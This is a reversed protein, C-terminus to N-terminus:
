KLLGQKLQDMILKENRAFEDGSMKGIEERTFVRNNISNTPSNQAYATLKRKAIENEDNLSKDYASKKLYRNVASNELNEVLGAIRLMEDKDMPYGDLYSRLDGRGDEDFFGPRVKNFADMPNEEAAPVQAPMQAPANAKSQVSNKYSNIQRAKEALQTLLYQGQQETIVNKQVLEKVNQVDAGIAQEMQYFVDKYEPMKNGEPRFALSSIDNNTQNQM